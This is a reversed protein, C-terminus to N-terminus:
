ELRPRKNMHQDPLCVRDCALVLQSWIGSEREDLKARAADYMLMVEDTTLTGVHEDLHILENSPYYTLVSDMAANEFQLVPTMWTRLQNDYIPAVLLEVIKIRGVLKKVVYMMSSM